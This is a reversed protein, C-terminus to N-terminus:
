VSAMTQALDRPGAPTVEAIVRRLEEIDIPKPVYDDMGAALCRDRDGKMAHATM